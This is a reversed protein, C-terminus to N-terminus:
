AQRPALISPLGADGVLAWGLGFPKRMFNAIAGGIFRGQQTAQRLRAHLGPACSAIVDLYNARIDSGAAGFDAAAWNVGVLTMEDNTAWAYIGRRERIYVRGPFRYTRGTDLIREKFLPFMTQVLRVPSTPWVLTARGCRDYHSGRRSTAGDATAQVGVVLEGERLLGTVTAAERLEVGVAVAADALIKDM